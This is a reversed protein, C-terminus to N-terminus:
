NNSNRVLHLFYVYRWDRGSSPTGSGFNSKYSSGEAIKSGDSWFLQGLFWNWRVILEACSLSMGFAFRASGDARELENFAITIERIEDQARGDQRKIINGAAM